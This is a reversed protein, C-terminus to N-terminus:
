CCSQCAMMNQYIRNKVVVQHTAVNLADPKQHLLFQLFYLARTYTSKSCTSSNALPALRRPQLAVLRSRRLRSLDENRTMHFGFFSKKSLRAHLNFQRFHFSVFGLFNQARRTLLAVFFMITRAFGVHIYFRFIEGWSIQVGSETKKVKNQLFHQKCFLILARKYTCKRQILSNNNLHSFAAFLFSQKM